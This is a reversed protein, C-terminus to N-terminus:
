LYLYNGSIVGSCNEMPVRSFLDWLESFNHLCLGFNWWFNWKVLVKLRLEFKTEVNPMTLFSKNQSYIEHMSVYTQLVIYITKICLKQGRTVRVEPPNRGLVKLKKYRWLCWLFFLFFSLFFFCFCINHYLADLPGFTSMKCCWHIWKKEWKMSRPGRSECNVAKLHHDASVYYRRFTNRELYCEAWAYNYGRDRNFFLSNFLSKFIYLFLNSKKKPLFFKDARWQGFWLIRSLRASYCNISQM